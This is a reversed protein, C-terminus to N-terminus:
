HFQMFVHVLGAAGLLLGLTAFRHGRFGTNSIAMGAILALAIAAVSTVGDAALGIVGLIVSLIALRSVPVADPVVPAAQGAGDVQGSVAAPQFAGAPLDATLATLQGYTKSAYAGEMRETYEDQDLRGEAFAAKLIEVTRERDATGARMLGVPVPSGSDAPQVTV